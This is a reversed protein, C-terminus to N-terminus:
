GVEIVPAPVEVMVIVTAAVVTGPVYVIVTVPVEPLVLSVVVTERVTVPVAGLKVMLADGVDIVTLGPLEPWEVIVVVIEPPKLEAMAKDAVPWGLLTVTLKLGLVMGAGPAPEEVM